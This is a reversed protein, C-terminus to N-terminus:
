SKRLRLTPTGGDDEGARVRLSALGVRAVVEESTM